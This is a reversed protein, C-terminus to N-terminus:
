EVDDTLGESNIGAKFGMHKMCVDCSTGHCNYPADVGNRTCLDLVYRCLSVSTDDCPYVRIANVIIRLLRAVNKNKKKRRMSHLVTECWNQGHV